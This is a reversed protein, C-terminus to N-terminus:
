DMELRGQWYRAVLKAFGDAVNNVLEDQRRTLVDIDESSVVVEIWREEKAEEAAAKAMESPIPEVQRFPWSKNGALLAMWRDRKWEKGLLLGGLYDALVKGVDARNPVKGKAFKVFRDCAM